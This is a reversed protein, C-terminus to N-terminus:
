SFIIALIALIALLYVFDIIHSILDKALMLASLSILGFILFRSAAVVAVRLIKKVSKNPRGVRRRRGPRTRKTPRPTTQMPPTFTTPNTAPSPAAPPTSGASHGTYRMAGPSPRYRARHREAHDELVQLARLNYAGQSVFVDLLVRVWEAPTTRQSASLPDGLTREICDRLSPPVKGPM